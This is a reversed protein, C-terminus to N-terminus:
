RHDRLASVMGWLALLLLMGGCALETESWQGRVVLGVFPFLGALVLVIALSRDSCGADSIPQPPTDRSSSLAFSM